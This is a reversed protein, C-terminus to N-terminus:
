RKSWDPGAWEGVALVADGGECSMAARRDDGCWPERGVAVWGADFVAKGGEVSVDQNAGVALADLGNEVGEGVVAFACVFDWLAM